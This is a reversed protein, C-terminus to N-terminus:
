FADLRRLSLPFPVVLVVCSKPGFMGRGGPHAEGLAGCRSRVFREFDLDSVSENWAGARLCHWM